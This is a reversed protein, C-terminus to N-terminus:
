VDGELGPHSLTRQHFGGLQASISRALPHIPSPSPSLPKDLPFLCFLTWSCQALYHLAVRKYILYYYVHHM